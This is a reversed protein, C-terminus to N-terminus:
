APLGVRRLLSRFREDRHLPKTRPDMKLWILHSCREQYAKELCEFARNVEGLGLHITAVHYPSVYRWRSIKELDELLKNAEDRKGLLGYAHGVAALLFPADGSFARAIQFAAVAKEAMSQQELLM